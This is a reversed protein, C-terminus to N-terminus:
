VRRAQAQSWRDWGASWSSGDACSERETLSYGRLHSRRDGVQLVVEGGDSLLDGAPERVHSVSGSTDTAELAFVWVIIFQAHQAIASSGPGAIQTVAVLFSAISVALRAPSWRAHCKSHGEAVGGIQSPPRRGKLHEPQLVAVGLRVGGGTVPVVLGNIELPDPDDATM